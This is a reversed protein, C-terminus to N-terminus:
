KELLQNPSVGVVDCIKLFTSLRLDNAKTISYVRQKTVGLAEALRENSVQNEQMALKIQKGVSSHSIM